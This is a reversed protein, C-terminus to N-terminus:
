CLVQWSAMGFPFSDELWGNEPAISTEPFTCTVHGDILFLMVPYLIWKKWTSETPGPWIKGCRLKKSLLYAVMEKRFSKM